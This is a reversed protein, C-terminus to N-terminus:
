PAVLTLERVVEDAAFVPLLGELVVDVEADTITHVITIETATDHRLRITGDGDGDGDGDGNGNGDDDGGDGDGDGGTDHHALVDRCAAPPLTTAFAHVYGGRVPVRYVGGPRVLGGAIVGIDVAPAHDGDFDLFQVRGGRKVHEHARAVAMRFACPGIMPPEPDHAVELVTTAGDRLRVRIGPLSHALTAARRLVVMADRTM